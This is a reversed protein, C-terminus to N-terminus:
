WRKSVEANGGPSDIGGGERWDRFSPVEPLQIKAVRIGGKGCTKTSYGQDFSSGGLQCSSDKKKGILFRQRVRARTLWM